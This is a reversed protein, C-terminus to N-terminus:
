KICDLQSSVEGLAFVVETIGAFKTVFRPLVYRGKGIPVFCFFSLPM